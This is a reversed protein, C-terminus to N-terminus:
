WERCSGSLCNAQEGVHCAVPFLPFLRFNSWPLSLNSILFFKEESRTTFCQFQSGLSIASGGDGSASLLHTGTTSLPM